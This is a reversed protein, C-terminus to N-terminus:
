SDGTQEGKQSRASDLLGPSSPGPTPSGFPPASAPAPLGPPYSSCLRPPPPSACSRPPPSPAARSPSARRWQDRRGPTSPFLTSSPRLTWDGLSAAPGYNGGRDSSHTGGACLRCRGHPLDHVDLRALAPVLYAGLHTPRADLLCQTERRTPLTCAQPTGAPGHSSSSRASSGARTRVLEAGGDKSGLGARRPVRSTSSPHRPRSPPTVVWSGKCWVGWGM